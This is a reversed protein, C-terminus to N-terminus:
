NSDKELAALMKRLSDYDADSVPVMNTMKMHISRMIAPGNPLQKLQLLAKRLTEVDTPPLTARVVFLHESVLPLRALVRLGRAAFEDYVEEKVAGADFDGALVGLAVNKHSKLHQYQGLKSLPIGAQQLVFRPVLTGMTSNTDVFAFRKGQLNALNRLPSDTRTIILGTLYPVGNTELRALLPKAGYHKVLEVYSAPGMFAIDVSDSGIANIQEDYDRGVKVVIQRELQQALYGALPAFRQQIEEAPLYPHVALLLPPREDNGAAVAPATTILFSLSALLACLVRSM